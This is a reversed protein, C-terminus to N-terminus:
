FSQSIGFEWVAEKKRSDHVETVPASLRVGAIINTRALTVRTGVYGQTLLAKDFGFCGSDGRVWGQVDFALHTGAPFVQRAGVLAQLGKGPGGKQVPNYAELRVFNSKWGLEANHNMVDIGQIMFYGTNVDYKAQGINGSKGVVVDVEKDFKLGTNAATSAWVDGYVGNKWNVALDSQFVPSEDYFRAGDVGLYMQKAKSTLTVDQAFVSNVSIFTLVILVILSRLSSFM